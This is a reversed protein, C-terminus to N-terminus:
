AQILQIEALLRVDESVLVGGAELPANWNLGWEKRYHQFIRGLIFDNSVFLFILISIFATLILYNWSDANAFYSKIKETVTLTTASGQEINEFISHYDEKGTLVIIISVGTAIFTLLSLFKLGRM